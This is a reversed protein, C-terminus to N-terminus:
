DCCSQTKALREADAMKAVVDANKVLKLAARYEVVAGRFDKAALCLQAQNLHSAASEDIHLNFMCSSINKAYVVQEGDFYSAWRFYKLAQVPESIKSLGMNNLECAMLMRGNKNSGDIKLVQEFYELAKATDNNAKAKSAEAFLLQIKGKDTLDSSETSIAAGGIEYLKYLTAVDRSTIGRQNSLAPFMVDEDYPSHGTLGLAHGIEHVAIMRMFDKTMLQDPFPSLTLLLVSAKNVGEMNGTLQAKGAEARLAPAHLDDVFNVTIDADDASDVIKLGIQGLTAKDWDDIAQRVAEEYEPRYSKIAEASAIYVRLPFRKVPWRFLGESVADKLYDGAGGTTVVYQNPKAKAASVQSRIVGALAVYQEREDNKPAVQLYSDYCSLCKDLHGTRHYVKACVLWATPPMTVSAPKVGSQSSLSAVLALLRNVQDLAAYAKNQALLCSALGSLALLSQPYAKVADRYVEEAAKAQGQLLLQEGPQCALSAADVEVKKSTAAWASDFLLSFTVATACAFQRFRNSLTRTAM